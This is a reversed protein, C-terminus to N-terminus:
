GATTHVHSKLLHVGADSIPLGKEEERHAQELSEATITAMPHADKKFDSRRMQVHASGLVERCQTISSPLLPFHKMRASASTM